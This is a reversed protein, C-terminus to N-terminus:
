QGHTTGSEDRERLVRQGHARLRSCVCHRECDRCFGTSWTSDHVATESPCPEALSCEIEHQEAVGAESVDYLRVRPASM